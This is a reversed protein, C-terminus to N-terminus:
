SIPMDYCRICYDEYGGGMQLITSISNIIRKYHYELFAILSVMVVLLIYCKIAAPTFLFTSLFDTGETVNTEAILLLINPSIGSMSFGSYIFREIVFLLSALFYILNKIFRSKTIVVSLCLFYSLLFLLSLQCLFMFMNHTSDTDHGMVFGYVFQLTRFGLLWFLSLFLIPQQFIPQLILYYGRKNNNQMEKQGKNM